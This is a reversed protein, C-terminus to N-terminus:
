GNTARAKGPSKEHDVPGVEGCADRSSGIRGESISREVCQVSRHPSRHPDLEVLHSRRPQGGAQRLHCQAEAGATGGPSGTRLGCQLVEVARVRAQERCGPRDLRLVPDPQRPRELVEGDLQVDDVALRVLLAPSLLSTGRPLLAFPSPVLGEEGDSGRQPRCQVPGATEPVRLRRVGRDTRCRQRRRETRPGPRPAAAAAPTARTTRATRSAPATGVRPAEALEAARSM